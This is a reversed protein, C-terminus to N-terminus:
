IHLIVSISTFSIRYKKLVDIGLLSPTSMIIKRKEKNKIFPSLVLVNALDEPYIKGSDNDTFLLRCDKLLFANASGVIGKLPRPSRELKNYDIGLKQADPIGIMTHTAGTHVVFRIPASVDLSPSKLSAVITYLGHYELDGVFQM